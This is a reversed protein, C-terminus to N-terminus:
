PYTTSNTLNLERGLFGETNGKGARNLVETKVQNSETFNKNLM